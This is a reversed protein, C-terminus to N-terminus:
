LFATGEGRYTPVVDVVAGGDVIHFEDIHESLEGSKAHRLWVRDGLALDAAAEGLVPTQVEGAMEYRAFHLGRPWEIRPLRDAAPPGSAVWGGGLLTASGPEAKRVVPLAFAAAPAPSFRTFNDFTHGGLLGSGAGLETVSPDASTLELSGTGGGNVFRLDAVTRVASVVEGRRELLEAFSAKQMRRVIGARARQGPPDDPLGAIQSEYAMMGVLAFGRRGSIARALEVAGAADHIPSRWVGMRGLVPATFSTDLEIAVQLVPRRDPPLVADILDLHAVSDVMLTVRAALLESEMLRRLAGRDVTPYALVVDDITEALWLSEALTYSLVGAFGPLALVSDLVSRVRVSKSAVRIPMGNARRLMDFANSALAELSIVGLPPDLHATAATLGEWYRDDGFSVGAAPRELSITRM